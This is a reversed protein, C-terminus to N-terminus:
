IHILSLNAVFPSSVGDSIGLAYRDDGSYSVVLRCNGNQAAIKCLEEFLM